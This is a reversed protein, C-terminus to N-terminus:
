RPRNARRSLKAAKARVRGESRLVWPRRKTASYHGYGRRAVVKPVGDVEVMELVRAVGNEVRGNIRHRESRM